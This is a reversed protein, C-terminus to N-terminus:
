SIFIFIFKKFFRFIIVFIIVFIFGILFLLLRSLRTQALLPSPVIQTVLNAGKALFLALLPCIVTTKGQGMIM